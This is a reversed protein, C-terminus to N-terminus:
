RMGLNMPALLSDIDLLYVLDKEMRCVGMMKSSLAHMAPAEQLCGLPLDIVDEVEDVILAVLQDGLRCMVMPTELTYERKSMGILLRMDLAPIVSGRLNIMGVLAGGQSPIESFAVIQQIEQIVDIPLAYRQGDLFFAIIKDVDLGKRQTSREPPGDTDGVLDDAQAADETAIPKGAKKKPKASSKKGPSKKASKVASPKKEPTKKSAKKEKEDKKKRAPTM